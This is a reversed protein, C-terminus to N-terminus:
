SCIDWEVPVPSVHASPVEHTPGYVLVDGDVTPGAPGLTRQGGESVSDIDESVVGPRLYRKGRLDGDVAVSSTGAVSSVRSTDVLERVFLSERIDGALVVDCLVRIFEGAIIDLLTAIASPRCWGRSFLSFTPGDLLSLGSPPVGVFNSSNRSGALHLGLDEGSSRDGTLNISSLSELGVSSSNEALFENQSDRVM